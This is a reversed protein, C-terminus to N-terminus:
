VLVSDLFKRGQGSKLYIERKRALGLTVFKESYILQWPRRGKTYRVRGQNHEELRKEINGTSGIYRTSCSLSKIVYIYFM